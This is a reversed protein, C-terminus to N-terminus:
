IFETKLASKHKQKQMKCTQNNASGVRAVVRAERAVDVAELRQPEGVGGIGAAYVAEVLAHTYVVVLEGDAEAVRHQHEGVRERRQRGGSRVRSRRAVRGGVQTLVVHELRAIHVLFVQM